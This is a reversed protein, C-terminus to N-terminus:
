QVKQYPPPIATRRVAGDSSPVVTKDDAMDADPVTSFAKRLLRELEDPDSEAPHRSTEVILTGLAHPVSLKKGPPLDKM